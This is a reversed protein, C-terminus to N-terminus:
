VELLSEAKEQASDYYYLALSALVDKDEIFKILNKVAEFEDNSCAFDASEIINQKLKRKAEKEARARGEFSRYAQFDKIFSM